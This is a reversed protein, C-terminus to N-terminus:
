TIAEQAVACPLLMYLLAAITIVLLSQKLM